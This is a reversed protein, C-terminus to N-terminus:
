VNNINQQHPLHEEESESSVPDVQLYEPLPVNAALQLPPRRNLIYLSESRSFPRESKWDPLSAPQEAVTMCIARDDTKVEEDSTSTEDCHAKEDSKPEQEIKAKSAAGSSNCSLKRKCLPSTGATQTNIQRKKQSHALSEQRLASTTSPGPCHMEGKPPTDAIPARFSSQGIIPTSPNRAPFCSLSDPHGSVVAQQPFTDGQNSANYKTNICTTRHYTLKGSVNHKRSEVDMSQNGDGVEENNFEKPEAEEHEDKAHEGKEEAHGQDRVEDGCSQVAAHTKEEAADAHDIRKDNPQIIHLDEPVWNSRLVAAVYFHRCAASVQEAYVRAWQAVLDNSTLQTAEATLTLAKTLTTHTFTWTASVPKSARFFALWTPSSLMEINSETPHPTFNSCTVLPKLYMALADADPLWTTKKSLRRKTKSVDDFKSEEQNDHRPVAGSVEDPEKIKQRVVTSPKCGESDARKAARRGKNGSPTSTSPEATKKNGRTDTKRKIYTIPSSRVM